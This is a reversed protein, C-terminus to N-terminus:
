GPQFAGLAMQHLQAAMRVPTNFAGFGDYGGTRQVIEFFLRRGITVTYFHFFEGDRPDRDYLIGFERLQDALSAALDFRAILDDYYNAPIPLTPIGASRMARAAAFVDRCSFAVHQYSAPEALRGGGLLPVNLVLRVGGGASRVARSRVLGYPSAVEESAQDHMGLLSRYFLVAEDFYDFPQALAVHDVATLLPPGTQQGSASDFDGAWGTDGATDSHCFFLATGDPATVAPLEAEGPGTNRPIAPALLARARQASRVPDRSEVAVASVAALGHPQSADDARTRNVLLRIGGQEWRQVPKSLHRGTRAFGMGRLLDEAAAEMLGDVGLEIFAYGPLDAPAPLRALTVPAPDAGRPSAADRAALSEELTLLSRMGDVATREADAQRFVDNFVELSWPGSYGAGLVDATFGTMDFDGQGPFRRHHRSWALTQMTLLPADALQLFFIKGAPIHRIGAPDHGLSLIHFSDLCLGLQPHAAQAVLRWAREYSSVHRGWALAEYAIRIGHPRAREALQWLQGAALGDDDIAAASVNSCVLLMDAGLSAMLEFKREARRLNPRFLVDPMAEFDRFPQYLVIALGLDAARLRVDAPSLRCTILDGEFIEVGDFGAGAAAALKEELSGSLSITAISRRM